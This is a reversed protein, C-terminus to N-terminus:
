EKIRRALFNEVANLVQQPTFGDTYIYYDAHELANSLRQVQEEFEAKSMDLPRRRMSEQYSVDLYILVWPNVLRQWMDPVFSHEQAIHRAPYGKEKLAGILTSKGASCPGVVGILNANEPQENV